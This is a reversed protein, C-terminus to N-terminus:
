KAHPQKRLKQGPETIGSNAVHPIADGGNKQGAARPQDLREAMANM